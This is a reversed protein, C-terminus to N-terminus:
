GNGMRKALDRAFYGVCSNVGFNLYSLLIGAKRENM